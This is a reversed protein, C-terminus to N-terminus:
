NKKLDRAKWTHRGTWQTSAVGIATVTTSYICLLPYFHIVRCYLASLFSLFYVMEGALRAISVLCSLGTVKCLRFQQQQVAGIEKNHGKNQVRETIFSIM